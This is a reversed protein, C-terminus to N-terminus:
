LQEEILSILHASEKELDPVIRALEALDSCLSALFMSESENLPEVTTSENFDLYKGMMLNFHELLSTEKPPEPLIRM